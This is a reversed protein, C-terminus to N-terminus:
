AGRKVKVQDAADDTGIGYLHDQLTTVWMARWDQRDRREEDRYHDPYTYRRSM